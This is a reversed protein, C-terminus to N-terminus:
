ADQKENSLTIFISYLFHVKMELAELSNNNWIIYDAKTIKKRSNMQTKMRQRIAEASSNDRQQIRRICVEEDADVVVVASLKKHLGAEFILAAEVIALRHGNKQLADIQHEIEEEVRPHIVAEVRQRLKKDSFILSAVLSRDLTGNLTYATAGLFKSLQTRIVPDSNSLEKAIDDAFLVPIGLRAFISCVTTKGSGIGGTVGIKLM